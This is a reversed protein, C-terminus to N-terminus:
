KAEAPKGKDRAKAERLAASAREPDQSFVIKDICDILLGINPTETELSLLAEKFRRQVGTRAQEEVARAHHLLLELALEGSVVCHLANANALEDFEFQVSVLEAVEKSKKTRAIDVGGPGVLVFEPREFDQLLNADIVVADDEVVALGNLHRPLSTETQKVQNEEIQQWDPEGLQPMDVLKAFGLTTAAEIASQGRRVLMMEANGSGKKALWAPRSPNASGSAFVAGGNEQQVFLAKAHLYGGSSDDDGEELGLRDARVLSIDSLNRASPPIQVTSPDIGVTLRNPQLDESVRQLFELKQDFFAGGVSVDSVGGAVLDTLQAWLTPAGPRGGLLRIEGDAPTERKLWPAFDRVRRVMDAVPKPVRMAFHELWAEVESWADHAISVGDVDDAGQIKVVNTLERNFGFGALTMNHSGVAVLGKHKGVLFILKPHFAGPVKVPLLTYRRGALKPPHSAMSASYQREDMLLVNHRVGANILRRLVVEEYFPLYANFTTILSAEYGGKRLEDLLSIKPLM